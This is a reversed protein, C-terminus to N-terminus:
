KPDVSQKARIHASRVVESEHLRFRFEELRPKSATAKPGIEALTDFATALHMEWEVDINPENYEAPIQIEFMAQSLVPDVASHDHTLQWMACAAMMRVGADEDQMMAALEKQTADDPQGVALIAMPAFRRVYSSDDDLLRVMNPLADSAGEGLWQLLVLGAARIQPDEDTLIDAYDDLVKPNDHIATELYAKLENQLEIDKTSSFLPRDLPLVVQKMTARWNRIAPDLQWLASVIPLRDTYGEPAAFLFAAEMNPILPIAREGLSALQTIALNRILPSRNTTAAVFAEFAEDTPPQHLGLVRLATLHEDGVAYPLYDIVVKERASSYVGEQLRKKAEEYKSDYSFDVDVHPRGTRWRSPDLPPFFRQAAVLGMSLLVLTLVAFTLSTRNM